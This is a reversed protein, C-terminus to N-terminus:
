RRGRVAQEGPLEVPKRGAAVADGIGIRAVVVLQLVRVNTGSMGEHQMGDVSHSEHVGRQQPKLRQQQRHARQDQPAAM